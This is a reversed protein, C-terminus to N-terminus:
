GAWGCRWCGGRWHCGGALRVGHGRWFCDTAHLLALAIVALKAGFWGSTLYDGAQTAFLAAGSIRAL